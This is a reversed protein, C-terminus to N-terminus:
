VYVAFNFILSFLCQAVYLGKWFYEFLSTM